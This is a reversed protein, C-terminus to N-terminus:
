TASLVQAPPKRATKQTEADDPETEDPQEAEETPDSAKSKEVLRQLVTRTIDCRNDSWVIQSNIKRLVDEPNGVNVETDTVKLVVAIRHERAHAEVEKLTEQYAEYYVRAEERLFEARQSAMSASLAACDATFKRELETHERTGVTCLKLREQMVKLSEQKEKVEAEAQQVRARMESMRDTFRPYNKYIYAVDILGVSQCSEPGCAPKEATDPATSGMVALGIVLLGGMGLPVIRSANM